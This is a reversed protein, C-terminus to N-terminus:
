GGGLLLLLGEKRCLVAAPRFIGLIAEAQLM